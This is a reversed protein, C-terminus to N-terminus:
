AIVASCGKIPVANVIALTKETLNDSCGYVMVNVYNVDEDFVRPTHENIIESLIHACVGNSLIICCAHALIGTGGRLVRNLCLAALDRAAAIWCARLENPGAWVNHKRIISWRTAVEADLAKRLINKAYEQNVLDVGEREEETLQRYAAEYAATDFSEVAKSAALARVHNRREARLDGAYIADEKANAAADM